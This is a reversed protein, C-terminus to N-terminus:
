RKKKAFRKEWQDALVTELRAALQQAAEATLDDTPQEEVGLAALALPGFSTKSIATRISYRGATEILCVHRLKNTVASSKM